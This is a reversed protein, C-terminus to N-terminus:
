GEVEEITSVADLNIFVVKDKIDRIRIYEDGQSLVYGRYYQGNKLIVKVRKDKINEEM